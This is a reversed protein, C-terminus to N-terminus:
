PVFSFPSLAFFPQSGLRGLDFFSFGFLGTSIHKRSKKPPRSALSATSREVTSDIKKSLMVTPQEIM